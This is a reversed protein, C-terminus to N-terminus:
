EKSLTEAVYNQKSYKKKTRRLYEKQIKDKIEVKKITDADLIGM